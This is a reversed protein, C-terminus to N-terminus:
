LQTAHTAIQLFLNIEVDTKKAVTQAEYFCRQAFTM